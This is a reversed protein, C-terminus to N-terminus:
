GFGNVMVCFCCCLCLGDLFAEVCDIGFDCGGLVWAFVWLLVCGGAADRM